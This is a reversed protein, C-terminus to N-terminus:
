RPGYEQVHGSITEGQQELVMAPIVLSSLEQKGAANPCHYGLWPLQVCLVSHDGQTIKAGIKKEQGESGRKRIPLHECM